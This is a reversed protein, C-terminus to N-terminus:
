SAPGSWGTERQCAIRQGHGVCEVDYEDMDVDLRV